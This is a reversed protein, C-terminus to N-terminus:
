PNCVKCTTYVEPLSSKDVPFGNVRIYECYQTHYKKGTPTIYVTETIAINETITNTKTEQEAVTPVAANNENRQTFTFLLLLILLIWGLWSFFQKFFWFLPYCNKHYKAVYYVFNEAELENRKRPKELYSLRYSHKIFHCFEHLLAETKDPESCAEDIFIFCTQNGYYIFGPTKEDPTLEYILEPDEQYAKIRIKTHIHIYHKLNEYTLKEPFQLAFRLAEIKIALM